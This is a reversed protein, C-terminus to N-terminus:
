TKSIVQLEQELVWHDLSRHNLNILLNIHQLLSFTDLFTGQKVV